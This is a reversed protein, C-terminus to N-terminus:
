GLLGLGKVPRVRYYMNVETESFCIGSFVGTRSGRITLPNVGADVIAEYAHEITIRMQPDMTDREYRSIGFFGADFEQLNNIKGTRRPVDSMEHKWRTEKDDVLDRKAYLNRAFERVDNSQPFRGSIGTLVVSEDSGVSLIQRSPM